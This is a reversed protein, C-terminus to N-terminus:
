PTPKPNQWFADSWLTSRLWKDIQPDAVNLRQRDRCYFALSQAFYDQVNARAVEDLGYGLAFLKPLRAGAEQWRPMVGGGASLWLGQPDGACGLHHDILHGLVHLSRENEGALDGVSVFAVNHLTRRGVTAPGLVYRSEGSTVVAFGGACSLLYEWLHAPLCRIQQDLAKMPAWAHEFVSRVWPPAQILLRPMLRARTHLWTRRGGLEASAKEDNHPTVRERL